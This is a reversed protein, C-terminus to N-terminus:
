VLTAFKLRGWPAIGYDGLVEAAPWDRTDLARDHWNDGPNELTKWSGDTVLTTTRGDATRVILKALLGAPSPSGNDVEVRISNDAGPKLRATVDAAHPHDWGGTGPQGNIVLSGNITFRFFDDATAILEAKEVKADAPLRLATVFLRHGQPKRPGRDGAHWIWKAGEFPADPLEIRRSSDSGIWGAQAWDSRELLGMTWIAPQSWGSAKGDKDWVRIKWHCPRHSPLPKGAYTIASTENSEVRGSDWLDGQDRALTERDGAVLVQYATQK